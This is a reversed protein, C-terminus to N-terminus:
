VCGPAPATTRSVAVGVPLAAAAPDIPLTDIVFLVPFWAGEVGASTVGAFAACSFVAVGASVAVNLSGSSLSVPVSVKWTQAFEVHVAPPSGIVVKLVLEPM